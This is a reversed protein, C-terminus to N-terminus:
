TTWWCLNRPHKAIEFGLLKPKQKSSGRCFLKTRPRWNRWKPSGEPAVIASTSVTKLEKGTLM